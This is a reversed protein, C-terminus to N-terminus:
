PILLNPNLPRKVASAVVRRQLGRRYLFILKMDMM